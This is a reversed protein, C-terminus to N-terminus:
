NKLCYLSSLYVSYVKFTSSVLFMEFCILSAISLDFRYYDSQDKISVSEKATGSYM